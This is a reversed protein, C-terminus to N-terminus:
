RLSINSFILFSFFTCRTIYVSPSMAELSFCANKVRTFVIVKDFTILIVNIKGLYVCGLSILSIVREQDLIRPPLLCDIM